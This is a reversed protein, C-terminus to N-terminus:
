LRPMGPPRESLRKFERKEYPTKADKASIGGRLEVDGSTLTVIMPRDGKKEFYQERKVADGELNIVTYVYQQPAIMHLVHLQNDRDIAQTPPRVGLYDGISYTRLVRTTKNDKLRFYLAKQRAGHYYTLLEFVRYSGAGAQGQPVGVIQSWFPKGDVVQITFSRSNFVQNIQPFSVTAKVRYSGTQGMPYSDNVIVRMKHAQGSAIVVPRAGRAAQSPSVLRGRSDTISFDLWNQGSNNGFILDRGARNVITLDGAIPEHALYSSRDLKLDVQIQAKAIMPSCLAGLLVVFLRFQVFASSIRSM